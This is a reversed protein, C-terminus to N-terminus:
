GRERDRARMYRVIDRRSDLEADDIQGRRRECNRGESVEMRLERTALDERNLRRGERVSWLSRVLDGVWNRRRWVDEVMDEESEKM